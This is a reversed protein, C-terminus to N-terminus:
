APPGQNSRLEDALTERIFKDRTAVVYSPVGLGTAVEVVHRTGCKNIFWRPAVADAGVVVAELQPGTTAMVAGIGVDTCLTTSIGDAVLDTAM